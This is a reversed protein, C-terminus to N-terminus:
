RRNASAPPRATHSRERPTVRGWEGGERLLVYRDAPLNSWSQVSGSPWRVELHDVTAASGLGFCIRPDSSSLYSTGSTVWRTMTRGGARCTVRAGVPRGPPRASRLQVGLWHGGPTSNRLVAAPADRHVVVLDVRGDNDLDGAAVGRGVVPHALYPSDDSGALEFRGHARGLFLQPTEAM